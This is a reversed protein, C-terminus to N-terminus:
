RRAPDCPTATPRYGSGSWAPATAAPATCFAVETPRDGIRVPAARDLTLVAGPDVWGRRKWLQLTRGVRRKARVEVPRAM